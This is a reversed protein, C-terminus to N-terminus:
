DTTSRLAGTRGLRDLEKLIDERVADISGHIGDRANAYDDELWAFTMYLDESDPKGSLLLIQKAVHGADLDGARVRDATWALVKEWTSPDSAADRYKRLIELIEADRMRGVLALECFELDYSEEAVLVADAWAAVMPPQVFGLEVCLRIAKLDRELPLPQM